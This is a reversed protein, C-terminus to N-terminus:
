LGAMPTPRRQIFRASSSHGPMWRTSHKVKTGFRKPTLDEIDLENLALLRAQQVPMQDLDDREELWAAVPDMASLTEAKAAKSGEPARYDSRNYVESARLCSLSVVADLLEPSQGGM